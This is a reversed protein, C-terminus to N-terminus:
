TGAVVFVILLVVYGGFAAGVQILLDRAATGGSQEALGRDAGAYAEAGATGALRGVAATLTARDAGPAAIVGIAAVRGPVPALASARADTFFVVAPRGSLHDAEAVGSVRYRRPTGGVVVDAQRGPRLADGAAAALRADVVIEDDAGPRDGAVMRYPTLAASSWGHGVAPVTGAALPVVPIAVDAVVTAVGPVGRLQGVLTVPGTGGEPLVVTTSTTDGDLDKGTFTIDRHALVVDAAAYRQPTLRNRLGSEVLVGMSMLIMVGTALAILTALASGIRHRLMRAALSLM